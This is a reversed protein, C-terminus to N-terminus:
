LSLNVVGNSGNPGTLLMCFTIKSTKVHVCEVIHSNSLECLSHVWVSWYEKPTYHPTFSGSVIFALLAQCGLSNLVAHIMKDLRDCRQVEKNKQMAPNLSNQTSESGHFQIHIQMKPSATGIHSVTIFSFYNCLICSSAIRNCHWSTSLRHLPYM